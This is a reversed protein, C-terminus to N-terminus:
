MVKRSALKKLILRYTIFLVILIPAIIVIALATNDLYRNIRLYAHGFYFGIVTFLLSKPLSPLLVYIIFRKYPVKAAGASVLSITEFGYALKGLFLTRGAHRTFHGEMKEMRAETFGFRSILKVLVRHRAFRGIGYYISDGLLDGILSVLYVGLFSIVGLSALFGAIITVIPGEFTALPLLIVYKYQEILGPIKDLPIDM